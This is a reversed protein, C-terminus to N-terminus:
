VNKYGTRETGIEGRKKVSAEGSDRRRSKFHVPSFSFSHIHARVDFISCSSENNDKHM